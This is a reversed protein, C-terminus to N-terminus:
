PCPDSESEARSGPSSSSDGRTQGTLLARLTLLADRRKTRAKIVLRQTWDVWADEDSLLSEIVSEDEM